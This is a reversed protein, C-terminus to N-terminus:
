LYKRQFISLDKLEVVSAEGERGSGLKFQPRESAWETPSVFRDDVRINFGCINFIHILQGNNLFDDSNMRTSSGDQPDDGEESNGADEVGRGGDDGGERKLRDIVDLRCTAGSCGSESDSEV